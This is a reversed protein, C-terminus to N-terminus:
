VLVFHFYLAKIKVSSEARVIHVALSGDPSEAVQLLQNEFGVSM